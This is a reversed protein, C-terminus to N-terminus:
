RIKAACEVRETENGGDAYKELRMVPIDSPKQVVTLREKKKKLHSLLRNKM